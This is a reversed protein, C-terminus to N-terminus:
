AARHYENIVGGLVRRRQVPADLPVIVPEDHDPPRQHRSQHPRHGNYHGAYTRLVARLHSEGYILIRDTCESRVARVWREAYCNARPALPPSKVVRIGESAFVDDFPDTFKADRDRILFRFQGTRGTLDMVLNRAQQATWAGDPYRTVGLIRVRRTAIEMVFLVYLRKLFITDVSFFDCALLGEAQTRLFRRWCTDLGRPAPRFRQSRLIRRVTAESVQHGLRTLEGHVRRYGWARNEGALRLVLARIEQGVAPRGPRSPYTWKRALLRRHWALLTGPTVLRGGRVAAPLLRALAALVARDAWDPEPRAIQRRLVMVEHRLVMIEADKSSQSGGLLVLWGFVRVM